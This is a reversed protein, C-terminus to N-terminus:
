GWFLDLSALRCTMASESVNFRSALTSLFNANGFRADHRKSLALRKAESKVLDAPMLIEAAFQNAEAEEKSFAALSRFLVVPEDWRVGGSKAHQLYHHAVEHCTTFRQRTLSQRKNIVIQAQGAEVYLFGSVSDELEDDFHVEIGLGDTFLKEDVPLQGDWYTGLLETAKTVIEERNKM